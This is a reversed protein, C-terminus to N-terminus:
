RTPLGARIAGACSPARRAETALRRHGKGIIKFAHLATEPLVTGDAKYLRRQCLDKIVIAAKKSRPDKELIARVERNILDNIGWPKRM